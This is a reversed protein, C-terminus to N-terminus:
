FPILPPKLHVIFKLTYDYPEKNSFTFRLPSCFTKAPEAVTVAHVHIFMISITWSAPKISSVWLIFNLNDSLFLALHKINPKAKVM